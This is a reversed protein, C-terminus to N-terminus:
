TWLSKINKCVINLKFNNFIIAINRTSYLRDKNNIKKKNM